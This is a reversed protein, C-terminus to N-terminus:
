VCPFILELDSIQKAADVSAQNRADHAADKYHDMAGVFCKIVSQQITRHEGILGNFIGQIIAEDVDNGMTNTEDAIVKIANMVAKRKKLLMLDRESYGTM